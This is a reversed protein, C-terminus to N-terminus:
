LLRNKIRNEREKSFEREEQKNEKKPTEIEQNCADCGCSDNNASIGIGCGNTDNCKGRLCTTLAVPMIDYAAIVFGSNKMAEPVVVNSPLASARVVRKRIFAFISVNPIRNAAKCIDYFSKWAAYKPANTNIHAKMKLENTNSDYSASDNYGILYEINETAGMGAPYDTGLHSIDHFTGNWKEACKILEEKPVFINGLFFDGKCAVAEVTIFGDRAETETASLSGQKGILIGIDDSKLNAKVFGKENLQYEVLSMSISEVDSDDGDKLDNAILPKVRDIYAAISENKEDFIFEDKGRYGHAYAARGQDEAKKHAAKRSEENDPTYTYCKGHDGWQYGPKGDQNCEHVPM